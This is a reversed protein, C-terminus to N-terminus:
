DERGFELRVFRGVTINEGLKAVVGDIRDKVTMKPDKIFPQELLCVEKYFSELKSAIIKEQVAPPKDAVQARYIEKEKEVTAAPLGERDLALPKAAAVQMCLDKLLAEFEANRAVFDTECRLEVLVGIKQNSHVYHGIRGEGTARGQKKAAIALGKKRLIEVARQLDGGSEALAEKCDMVGLGTLERLEKVQAATVAM